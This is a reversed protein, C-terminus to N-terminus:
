QQDMSLSLSKIWRRARTMSVSPMEWGYWGEHHGEHGRRHYNEHGDAGVRGGDGHAGHLTKFVSLNKHYLTSGNEM